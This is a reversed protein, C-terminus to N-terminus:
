RYPRAVAEAFRRQTESWRPLAGARALAKAQMEARRGPDSTVRAIAAALAREDGPPVLIAEAGDRVVEPIAGATTAIVGLGHAVAEALAIGFGEYRSPLVLIDHRDLEDSLAADDLTGRFCIRERVPSRAIARRVRAVYPRDRDDAGALTLTGQRAAAFARVLELAGKRPTISGLFLLRASGDPSPRPPTSRTGLRDCGPKVVDIRCPAVGARVLVYRTTQSTVIARDAADLLVREVALRAKSHLGDRESASLHHVLAVLRARPRRRHLSAALAVRPHCLEDIVVVDSHSDRALRAAFRANERLTSLM